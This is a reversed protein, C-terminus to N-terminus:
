KLSLMVFPVSISATMQNKGPIIENWLKEMDVDNCDLLFLQSLKSGNKDVPITLALKQVCNGKIGVENQLFLLLLENQLTNHGVIHVFAKPISESIKEV